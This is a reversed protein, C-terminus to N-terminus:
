CESDFCDAPKGTMSVSSIYELLKYLQKVATVMSPFVEYAGPSRYDWAYVSRNWVKPILKCALGAFQTTSAACWGELSRNVIKGLDQLMGPHKKRRAAGAVGHMAGWLEEPLGM